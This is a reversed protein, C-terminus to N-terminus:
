YWYEEFYDVFITLSRFSGFKNKSAVTVRIGLGCLSEVFFCFQLSIERTSMSAFISLLISV